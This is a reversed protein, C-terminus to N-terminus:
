TKLSEVAVSLYVCALFLSFLRFDGKREQQINLFKEDQTCTYLDVHIILTDAM